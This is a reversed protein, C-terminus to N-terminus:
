CVLEYMFEEMKISCLYIIRLNDSIFSATTFSNNKKLSNKIYINKINIFREIVIQLINEIDSSNDFLLSVLLQQAKIYREITFFSEAVSFSDFRDFVEYYCSQNLLTTACEEIVKFGSVIEQRKLIYNHRYRDVVTDFEIENNNQKENTLIMLEREFFYKVYGYYCIDLMELTIEGKRIGDIPDSECISVKKRNSGYSYVLFYHPYHRLQYFKNNKDSLWYFRDAPVIVISGKKIANDIHSLITTKPRLYKIKVGCRKLANCESTFFRNEIQLGIPRETNRVYVFYDNAMFDIINKNWYFLLKIVLDYLCTKYMGYSLVDPNRM